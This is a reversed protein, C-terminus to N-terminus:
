SETAAQQRSQGAAATDDVGTTATSGSTGTMESTDGSPLTERAFLWLVVALLTIGGTIAFSTTYSWNDAIAGAVLPGSVAGIDAIMQFGALVGGGRADSGLVDALAASQAPNVSGSGIGAILSAFLFFWPDSSQGLLTAGLALLVLGVLAPPKRGRSDAIRGALLLAGASGVGFVALAIGAFAESTGMVNKVFLPILSTRIGLVVWGKIFNSGLAARYTSDRLAQPFTMTPRGGSEIPGVLHSHRLQWWVLVTTLVLALGYVLFPARLSFGVLVSGFVPGAIGGLLFSTGWASSAKGRLRPPAMRILLGIASVTFMTSGIGSASRFVMLQWYDQAFACAISGAAVISIGWLYVPREGLKTVLKGSLPAFVLRVGAFASVVASAATIGVDFSAAFTPLAPAVLGYGIAILFSGGVLVWIERPLRTTPANGSDDPEGAHGSAATDAM